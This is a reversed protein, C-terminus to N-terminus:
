FFEVIRIAGPAGAGGTHPTADYSISGAGGGGYNNGAAGTAATSTGRAGGGGMAADGGNGGAGATGSFRVSGGGDGGTMSFDGTGSGGGTGGLRVIQPLTGGVSDGSGGAGGAAICATGFTTQSGALGSGGASGGAGGAGFVTNYFAQITGTVYRSAFGAGGGGGGCATFGTGGPATSGGGGGGGGWCEVTMARVGTDPTFTTGSTLFIEKAPIPITKYSMDRSLYDNAPLAATGPDPIAGANHSGGYQALPLRPPDITGTTIKSADLNPILVLPFASTRFAPTGASINGFWSNAAASAWGVAFTGTTTVPTGVISFQVPMTIGVSTVTGVGALAPLQAVPIKGTGDLSAYGNPAAKRSVFEALNGAAATGGTSGLWASPITGNLLLKSQVIAATAAVKANTVSGDLPVRQDTLRPDDSAVLGPPVPIFGALNFIYHGDADLDNDMISNDLAFKM